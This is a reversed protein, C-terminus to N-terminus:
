KTEEIKVDKKSLEKKEKKENKKKAEADVKYNIVGTISHFFEHVLKYKILERNATTNNIWLYHPISQKLEINKYTEIVMIIDEHGVSIHNIIAVYVKQLNELKYTYYNRIWDILTLQSNDLTHIVDKNIHNNFDFKAAYILQDLKDFGEINKVATYNQTKIATRINSATTADIRSLLSDHKLEEEDEQKKIGKLKNLLNHPIIKNIEENIAKNTEEQEKKSKQLISLAYLLLIAIFLEM